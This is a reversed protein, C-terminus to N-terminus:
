RKFFLTRLIRLLATLKRSVFFPSICFFLIFIPAWIVKFFGSHKLRHCMESLFFILLSCALCLGRLDVRKSLTIGDHAALVFAMGVSVLCYSLVIRWSHAQDYTLGLLAVKSYNAFIVPAPAVFDGSPDMEVSWRQVPFCVESWRCPPTIFTGLNHWDAFDKVERSALRRNHEFDANLFWYRHGEIVWIRDLLTSLPAFDLLKCDLFESFAPMWELNEDCSLWVRRWKAAFFRFTSVLHSYSM